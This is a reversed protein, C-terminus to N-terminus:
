APVRDCAIVAAIDVEEALRPLFALGDILRARLADTMEGEANYGLWWIQRIALFPRIRDVERQSLPRVAGYGRIFAHWVQAGQTLRFCGWIFTALDYARWGRAADDFDYFRVAGQGDIMANEHHGDGHCPGFAPGDQALADLWDGLDRALRRTPAPLDRALAAAVRAAPGDILGARAAVPMAPDADLADGADHLRALARGAAEADAPAAACPRGPLLEVMAGQGGGEDTLAFRGPADRRMRPRAAVGVEAAARQFALQAEAADAGHRPAPQWKFALPAHAGAIPRILNRGPWPAGFTAGEPLGYARFIRQPDPATM